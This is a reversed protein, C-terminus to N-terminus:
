AATPSCTSRWASCSTVPGSRTGRTRPGRGSSRRRVRSPPRRRSRGPTPVAARRSGAGPRRGPRIFAVSAVGALVPLHARGHHAQRVDAPGGDQDLEVPPPDQGVRGEVWGSAAVAEAPAGGRGLGDPGRQGDFSRPAVRRPAARGRGGRRCGRRRATAREQRVGLDTTVVRAPLCRSRAALVGFGRDGPLSEVWSVAGPLGVRVTVAVGHRWPGGSLLGMAPATMPNAKDSRPRSRWGATSSRRCRGAGAEDPLDGFLEVDVDQQHVQAGHPEGLRARQAVRHVAGVRQSRM